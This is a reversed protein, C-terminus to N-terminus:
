LDKFISEISAWLIIAAVLVGAGILYRLAHQFWEINQEPTITIWNLNDILLYGVPYAITLVIVIILLLPLSFINKYNPKLMNWKFSNM